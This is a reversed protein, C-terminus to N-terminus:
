RKQKTYWSAEELQGNLMTMYKFKIQLLNNSQHVQFILMKDLNISMSIEKKKISWIVDVKM